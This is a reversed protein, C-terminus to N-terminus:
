NRVELVSSTIDDHLFGCLHLNRLSGAPQGPLFDRTIEEGEEITRLPWMLSIGYPPTSKDLPLILLPCVCANPTPSHSISTGVEDMLFWRTYEHGVQPLSYCSFYRWIKRMIVDVREAVNPSSIEPDNPSQRLIISEVRELLGPIEILQQRTQPFTTTWMHDVLFVDEFAEIDKKAILSYKSRISSVIDDMSREEEEEEEDGEDENKREDDGESSEDEEFVAFQVINGVDFSESLIKTAARRRLSTPLSMAEFAADYRKTFEEVDQETPM